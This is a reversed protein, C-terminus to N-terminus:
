MDEFDFVDTKRERCGACEEIVNKEIPRKNMIQKQKIQNIDIQCQRCIWTGEPIYSLQLCKIHFADECRDCLIM